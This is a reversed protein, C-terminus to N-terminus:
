QCSGISNERKLLKPFKHWVSLVALCVVRLNNFVTLPAHNQYPSMIAAVNHAFPLDCPPLLSQENIFMFLSLVNSCPENLM